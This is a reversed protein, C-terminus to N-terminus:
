FHIETIKFSKFQKLDLSSFLFNTKKVIGGLFLNKPFM